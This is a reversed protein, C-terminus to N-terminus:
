APSSERRRLLPFPNSGQACKLCAIQTLGKRLTCGREEVQQRDADPANAKSPLRGNQRRQSSSNYLMHLRFGFGCKRDNPAHAAQRRATGGAGGVYAVALSTRSPGQSLYPTSAYGCWTIETQITDLSGQSRRRRSRFGSKLKGLRTVCLTGTVGTQCPQLRARKVSEHPYGRM